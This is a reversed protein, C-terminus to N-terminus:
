GHELHHRMDLGLLGIRDVFDPDCEHGLHVSTLLFGRQFKSLRELLRGVVPGITL